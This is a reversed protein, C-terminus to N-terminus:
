KGSKGNKAAQRLAHIGMAGAAALAAKVAEVDLNGMVSAFNAETVGFDVGIAGGLITLVTATVVVFSRKKWASQGDVWASYQKAWQILAFALPAVIFAFGYEIAMFKLSQM